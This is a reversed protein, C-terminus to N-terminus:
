GIRLLAPNLVGGTENAKEGEDRIQTKLNHWRRLEEGHIWVHSLIGVACGYMFGTIGIGADALHSADDASDQITGGNAIRGEMLRAWTEAYQVTAAGYPDTNADVTKKWGEPCRLTMKEPAVLLAGELMLKKRQEKEEYERQRQQYEPSARYEDSRRQQEARFRAAVERPDEGPNAIVNIENFETMVFEYSKNALEVMREAVRDIHDGPLSEYQIM